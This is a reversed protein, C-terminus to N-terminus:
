VRLIKWKENKLNGVYGALDSNEGVCIANGVCEMMPIDTIDDGYSYSSDLDIRHKKAYELIASKKGVGITQFGCIGGTLIGNKDKIQKICLIDDVNLLQGLPSLLPLMSGSVFIIKHGKAKHKSISNTVEEFFVDKNIINDNFWLLGNSIIEAESYGKFFEYYKKNLIERSSKSEILFNFEKYFLVNLDFLKNKNSWYNFFNLMSNIKLITGDVDYFACKM